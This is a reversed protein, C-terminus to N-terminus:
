KRGPNIADEKRKMIVEYLALIQPITFPVNQLVAIMDEFIQNVPLQKVKPLPDTNQETM